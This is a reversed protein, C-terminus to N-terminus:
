SPLFRGSALKRTKTVCCYVRDISPRAVCAHKEEETPVFIRMPMM